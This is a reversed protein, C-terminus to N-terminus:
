FAHVRCSVVAFGPFIEGFVAVNPRPHLGRCARNRYTSALENHPDCVVVTFSPM